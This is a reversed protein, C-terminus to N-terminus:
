GVSKKQLLKIKAKISMIARTHLQSVRSESIDLVQGIEKLTLGEYYYLAIVLRQREELQGIFNTLEDYTEKRELHQSPDPVDDNKIFHIMQREEGSEQFVYDQLSLLNVSRIEEYLQNLETPPIGLCEALEQDSPERGLEHQLKMLSKEMDRAKRRVTRPVWDMRRLDDLMEGKIRQSAFYEFPVNRNPEYHEIADLLGIVGASLLDDFAIHDPLSISLRGALYKVLYLYTQVIQDRDERLHDKKYKKWLEIKERNEM